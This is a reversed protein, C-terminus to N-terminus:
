QTGGEPTATNRTEPLFRRYDALDANLSPNNILVPRLFIVLERKQYDKATTKFLNGILPMNSIGPVAGVNDQTSDEM